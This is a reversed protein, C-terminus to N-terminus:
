GNRKNRDDLLEQRHIKIEEPADFTVVVKSGRIQKVTVKIGGSLVVSQGVKRSLSLTTM